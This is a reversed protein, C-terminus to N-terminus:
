NTSLTWNPQAKEINEKHEMITLARLVGERTQDELELFLIRRFSDIREQTINRDMWAGWQDESIEGRMVRQIQEAAASSMDKINTCGIEAFDEPTYEIFKMSEEHTICVLIGDYKFDQFGWKAEAPALDIDGVTGSQCATLLLVLLLLISIIRIQM